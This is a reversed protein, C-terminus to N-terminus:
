TSEHEGGRQGGARQQRGPLAAAAAAGVSSQCPHSSPKSHAVASSGSSWRRGFPRVMSTASIRRGAISRALRIPESNV